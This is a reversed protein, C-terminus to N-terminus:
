ATTFVIMLQEPTFGIIRPTYFNTSAVAYAFSAMGGTGPSFLRAGALYLLLSELLALLLSGAHLASSNIGFIQFMWKCYYIALPQHNCWVDRYLVSGHLIESAISAYIGEDVFTLSHQYHPARLLVSTLLGACLLLIAQFSLTTSSSHFGGICASLRRDTRTLMQTSRRKDAHM